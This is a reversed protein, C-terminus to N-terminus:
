PNVEIMSWDGEKSASYVFRDPPKSHNAAYITHEVRTPKFVLLCFSDLASNHAWRLEDEANLPKKSADLVSVMNPPTVTGMSLNRNSSLTSNGGPSDGNGGNGGYGTISYSRGIALTNLTADEIADLRTYKFGANHGPTLVKLVPDEYVSWSSTESLSRQEGSPPWSFCVRYTPDIVKWLRLRESEWFDDPNATGTVGIRKPPTGFRYSFNPAAVLFVRGTLTFNEGTKPMTWYLVHNKTGKLSSMLDANRAAGSLVLVKPDTYLQEHFAIQHIAPSGDQKVSALPLRVTEEGPLTHNKSIGTQLSKVWAPEGM